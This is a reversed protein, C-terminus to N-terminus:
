ESPFREYAVSKGVHIANNALGPMKVNQGLLLLRRREIGDDSDHRFISLDEGRAKCAIVKRKTVM